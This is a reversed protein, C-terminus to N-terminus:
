GDGRPSRPLPTDELQDDEGSVHLCSPALKLAPEWPNREIGESFEIQSNQWSCFHQHEKKLTM